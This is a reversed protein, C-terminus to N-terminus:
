EARICSISRTLMEDLKQTADKINGDIKPDRKEAIVAKLIDIHEKLSGFVILLYQTKECVRAVESM